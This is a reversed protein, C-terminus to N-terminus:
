INKYAKIINGEYKEWLLHEKAFNFIKIRKQYLDEKNNKFYLLHTVLEDYDEFTTCNNDLMNVTDSYSSTCVVHLGAHAYEFPKNHNIYKHSWIKKMPILGISCKSMEKYMENRSLLFGKNIVKESSQFNTRGILILKGVDNENFVRELGTMNRHPTFGKLSEIGAYLSNLEDHFIPAQAISTETKMPFNPLLYIKKAYKQEMENLTTISTVLTPYNSVIDSEWNEWVKIIRNFIFNKKRNSFKSNDKLLKSEYIRKIYISWYEHDNYIMPVDFESILKASQLNHAHVIDPRLEDLIEKIQKKVSNWISTKGFLIYPIFQKKPYNSDPWELKYLNEFIESNNTHYDPLLNGAFFVRYGADIGTIASKEVRWDPLGLQSVHLVKM